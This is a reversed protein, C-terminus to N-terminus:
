NQWNPGSQEGFLALWKLAPWREIQEAGHVWAGIKRLTMLESPTITKGVEIEDGLMGGSLAISAARRACHVTATNQPAGLLAWEFPM